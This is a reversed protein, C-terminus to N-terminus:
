FPLCLLFYSNIGVSKKKKKIVTFQPLSIIVDTPQQVESTKKKLTKEETISVYFIEEVFVHSNM